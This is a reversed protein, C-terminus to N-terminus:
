RSFPRSDSDPRIASTSANLAASETDAAVRVSITPSAHAAPQVSVYPTSGGGFEHIIFFDLPCSGWVGCVLGHGGDVGGGVVVGVHHAAGGGVGEVAPGIILGPVGTEPDAVILEEVVGGNSADLIGVLALTEILLEDAAHGVAVVEGSAVADTPIVGGDVGVLHVLHHCFQDTSGGVM